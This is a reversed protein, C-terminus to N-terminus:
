SELKGDRWDIQRDRDRERERERVCVCGGRAESVTKAAKETRQKVSEGFRHYVQIEDRDLKM